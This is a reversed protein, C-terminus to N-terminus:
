TDIHYQIKKIVWLLYVAIFSLIIIQIVKEKRQIFFFDVTIQTLVLTFAAIVANRVRKNRKITSEKDIFSEPCINTYEKRWIFCSAMNGVLEWGFQTYINQYDKNPFANLDFVYRYKRPETKVFDIKISSFQNIKEINWGELALSELWDEYDAPVVKKLMSFWVTKKEM